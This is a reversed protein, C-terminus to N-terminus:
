INQVIVTPEAYYLKSSSISLVDTDEYFLLFGQMFKEQHCKSITEKAPKKVFKNSNSAVFRKVPLMFRPQVCTVYRREPKMRVAKSHDTHIGTVKSTTRNQTKDKLKEM